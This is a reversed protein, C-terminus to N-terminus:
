ATTVLLSLLPRLGTVAQARLVSGGAWGFGHYECYDLSMQVPVRGILRGPSLQGVHEGIIALIEQCCNVFQKGPLRGLRQM